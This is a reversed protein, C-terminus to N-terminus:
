SYSEMVVMQEETEGAVIQFNTTNCFAISAETHQFLVKKAHRSSNLLQQCKIELSTDQM